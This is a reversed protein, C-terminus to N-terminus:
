VEATKARVCVPGPGETLVVDLGTEVGGSPGLGRSTLTLPGYGTFVLRGSAPTGATLDWTDETVIAAHMAAVDILLYGGAPVVLSGKSWEIGTGSLVDTLQLLGVPGPVRILADVIPRTSFLAATVTQGSGPAFYQDTPQLSRWAGGPINFVLQVDVRSQPCSFAPSDSSVLQGDAADVFDGRHRTLALPRNTGMGLLGTLLEWNERLRWETRGQVRVKLGLTIQSLPDDWLPLAYHAQPVEVVARRPALPPAYETGELLFLGEQVTNGGIVYGNIGYRTSV